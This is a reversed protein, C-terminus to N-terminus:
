QSIKKRILQSLKVGSMYEHIEGDLSINPWKQCKWLCLSESCSIDQKWNYFDKDRKVREIMYHSFKERCSRWTCIRIDM